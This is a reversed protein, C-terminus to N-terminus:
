WKVLRLSVINTFHADRTVLPLDHQLALSAIWIDNDPVKTGNTALEAKIRGFFAATMLECPLVVVKKVFADVEALNATRRGSHEAGYLLEGAAIVPLFLRTTSDIQNLVKQENKRIAIVINTDLLFDGAM